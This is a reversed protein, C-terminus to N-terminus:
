FDVLEVTFILTSYPPIRGKKQEGYALYQPIYLEWKSGKPMMTLAETWGKIVENARFKSIQNRRKHSSDFVTGDILKGEYKVSVESTDSPVPGSGENIIKYQLGSPTTVVGEKTKNAELFEEGAKKNREYEDKKSAEIANAYITRATSDPMIANGNIADIFGANFMAMNFATSDGGAAANVVNVVAPVRANVTSAVNIGAMYANYASDGTHSMAECYGRVVHEIYASDVHFRMQLFRMLGDTQAVGAAYAMTDAATVPTTQVTQTQKNDKKKKADATTFAASLMMVLAM